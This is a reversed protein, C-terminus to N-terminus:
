NRVTLLFVSEKRAFVSHQIGSHLVLMQGPNMETSQLDTRFSVEGDLVQVTITGPAKHPKMEAGEHLAILVITMDAGKFLTIANRDSSLWSEENKIQRIRSNLDIEVLNSDLLRDGEPRQPTAENSREM